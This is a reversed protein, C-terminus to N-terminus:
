AGSRIREEQNSTSLGALLPLFEIRGGAAEVVAAELMPRDIYDAGKCHVSPKIIQLLRVPTDDPLVIVHDVYPSRQLDLIRQDQGRIPRTPGKSRRVSADSNVLVLLRDGHESARRLSLQHGQHLLDFVGNTTVLEQNTAAIWALFEALMPEELLFPFPDASMDDALDGFIIREVIQALQHLVLDHLEQIRATERLPITLEFDGGLSNRAGTLAVTTIGVEGAAAVAERVNESSGSTSIAILVDGASGVARVQRAFVEAFGYDNAIATLASTDVTLSVAALPARDAALKGSFEAAFHQAAAASGGNGCVLLKGGASLADAIVTAVKVIDASRDTLVTAGYSLRRSANDFLAQHWGEARRTAM